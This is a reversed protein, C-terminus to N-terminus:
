NFWKHNLIDELKIRENENIKLCSQILNDVDKNFNFLGLESRNTDHTFLNKKTTLRCNLIDDDEEWPIDGYIMNFLLVGLSWVAARDGHYSKNVLWEPPSYVRTGYFETYKSSKQTNTFTGAGFDILKVQNTKLDILINEDKIDRHLVGLNKIALVTEVIQKFYEKALNEGLGNTTSKYSMETIYDFLDKSYEYREMVIIFCNKQELYDLIKICNKVNRVRIMLAIELPIRRTVLVDQREDMEYIFDDSIDLNYWQTVNTKRIVKLAVLQNTSNKIGSFITGFGGKGIEKGISYDKYFLDRMQKETLNRNIYSSFNILDLDCQTKCEDDDTEIESEVYNEEEESYYNEQYASETSSSSSSSSTSLHESDIKLNINAQSMVLNM